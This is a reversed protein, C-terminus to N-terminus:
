AQTKRQEPEEEWLIKCTSAHFDKPLKKGLRERNKKGGGALEETTLSGEILTVVCQKM